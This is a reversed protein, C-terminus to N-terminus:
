VVKRADRKVVMLFVMWVVWRAVKQEARMDVLCAAKWDAKQAAMKLGMQDVMEVAM